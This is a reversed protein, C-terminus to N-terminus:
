QTILARTGSLAVWYLPCTGANGNTWAIDITFVKSSTAAPVTYPGVALTKNFGGANATIAATTGANTVTVAVAAANGTQSLQQLALQVAGGPHM